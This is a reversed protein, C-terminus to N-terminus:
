SPLSIPSATIKKYLEKEDIRFKFAKRGNIFVVPIQEKYKELLESDLSIDIETIQIPYKQKAKLLVAKAEECLHCDEKSYIEVKVTAKKRRLFNM